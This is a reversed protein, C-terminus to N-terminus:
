TPVPTHPDTHELIIFYFLMMYVICIGVVLVSMDEAVIIPIGLLFVLAFFVVIGTIISVLIMGRPHLM